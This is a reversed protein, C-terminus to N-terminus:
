IGCQQPQRTPQCSCSQNLGPQFKWIAAHTARFLFFLHPYPFLASLPGRRLLLNEWLPAGRWASNSVGRQWFAFGLSATQSRFIKPIVSSELSFCSLAGFSPVQLPGDGYSNVRISVESPFAAALSPGWLFLLVFWWVCPTM